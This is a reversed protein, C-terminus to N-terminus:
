ARSGTLIAYVKPLWRETLVGILLTLAIALFPCLICIALSVVNNKGLVFYSGSIFYGTLVGHLCYVWFTKTAFRPLTWNACGLADYLGLAALMGCPVVLRGVVAPLHPWAEPWAGIQVLATAACLTGWGLVALVWAWIPLRKLALGFASAAMGLLFWGLADLAFCYPIKVEPFALVCVAGVVVLAWRSLRGLLQWLPLLVFIPMLSRVFWLALNWTPGGELGFLTRCKGWVGPVAFVTREFLPHDTQLNTFCILPMVILAGLLGWCLYPVLLSRAKKRLMQM